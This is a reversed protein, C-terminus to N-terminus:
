GCPVELIVKVGCPHNEEFFLKGEPGFLSNIREEINALGLGEGDSSDENLGLGTDAIEWRLMENNKRIKISIKGGDVKPELGHKIANEVIPQILMSPFQLRKLEDPVDISYSLRKGMRIQFIDLYANIIEIEEEAYTNETEFVRVKLKSINKPIDSAAIKKLFYLTLNEATTDFDVIFYESRLMDLANILEKDKKHVVVKHDLDDILPSIIKRMDFYDLVMGNDDPEGEIEVRMKYTHGHLNYCKGKHFQLRHGMEWKFEKAIRM